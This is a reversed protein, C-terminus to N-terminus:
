SHFSIDAQPSAAALCMCTAAVLAGLGGLVAAGAPQRRQAPQLLAAPEHAGGGRQGIHAQRHAMVDNNGAPNCARRPMDTLRLEVGQWMQTSLYRGVM